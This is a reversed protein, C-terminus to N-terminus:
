SWSCVVKGWGICKIRTVKFPLSTIRKTASISFFRLKQPIERNQAHTKAAFNKSLDNIVANKIIGRIVLYIPLITRYIRVFVISQGRHIVQHEHRKERGDFDGSGVFKQKRFKNATYQAVVQM